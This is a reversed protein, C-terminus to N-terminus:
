TGCSAPPTLAGFGFWPAVAQAAAEAALADTQLAAPDPEPSTDSLELADIDAGCTGACGVHGDTIEVADADISVSAKAPLVLSSTSDKNWDLKM